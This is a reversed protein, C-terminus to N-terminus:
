MNLRLEAVHIASVRVPISAGGDVGCPIGADPVEVGRRVM